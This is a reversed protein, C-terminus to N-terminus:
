AMKIPGLGLQAATFATGGNADNAVAAMAAQVFALHDKNVDLDAVADGSPSAVGGDARILRPQIAKKGNAIRSVMVCLQLPNLTTYGQGIGMSPTEGPYWMQEAPTKFLPYAKKWATSPVIGKKQGPIGIDFVEGLGFKKATEAIKDPGVSVATQYFFIDCSTKIANHMNMVGHSKDCHWPRGYYWVGNCVYTKDPSIGAELAALAVMTKFTSGPPYTATLAKNFLPKREYDRLAQLEAGSLGEVFRNADFSPASYLCLVDGTRCDMMVAAGSEEGFVEQARLQIDRDLTLEIKRGPTASIDGGPDAKVVRGRVDVEVRKFGSKGRLDADLSKEVGTKGIRFGPHHLLGRDAKGTAEETAIDEATVQSVYGIVHAFGGGDRYVRIDSMEATLQPLEPARVEVRAFEEWSMDEMAPIPQRNPAKALDNRLKALKDPGLPVLEGMKAIIADIDDGKDKQVSLRFNPRNSALVEGYRDVIVGRPPPVIQFNFQNKESLKQYAGTEFLQLAALRGGLALMGLGTVGGLLFVRRHFVGQRENVESFFISPETM